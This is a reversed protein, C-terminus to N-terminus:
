DWCGNKLDQMEERAERPREALNQKMSSIQLDYLQQAPVIMDDHTIHQDTSHLKYYMISNEDKSHPILMTHGIEHEIVLAFVQWERDTKNKNFTIVKLCENQDTDALATPRNTDGVTVYIGCSGEPPVGSVVETFFNRSASTEWVTTAEVVGLVHNETLKPDMWVKAPLDVPHLDVDSSCAVLLPLVAFIKKM